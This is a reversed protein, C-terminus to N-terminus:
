EGSRVDSMFVPGQSLWHVSWFLQVTSPSKLSVETLLHTWIFYSLLFLSNVYIWVFLCTLYYVIIKYNFVTKYLKYIINIWIRVIDGYGSLFPKLVLANLFRLTSNFMLSAITVFYIPFNYVFWWQVFCWILDFKSNLACYLSEVSVHFIFALNRSRWIMGKMTWQNSWNFHVSFRILRPFVITPDELTKAWLKRSKAGQQLCVPSQFRDKSLAM